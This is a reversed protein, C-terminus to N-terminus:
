IEQYFNSIEKNTSIINKTVIENIDNNENKNKLLIKPNNPINIEDKKSNLSINLEKKEDKETNNSKKLEGIIKNQEDLKIEINNNISKKKEENTEISINKKGLM